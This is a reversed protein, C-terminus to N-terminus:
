TASRTSSPSAAVEPRAVSVFWATMFAAPVSLLTPYDYPFLPQAHGLVQVWVRPSFLILVVSLVLGVAGGWVAGATTLGPWYMALLLITFNASAGIVLPLTALFGVNQDRFLIGLVISVIGIVLCAYRSVRLEAAEDARGARLVGNYFDRSVAAAAALTIGSVVALITAFAVAAVVGLLVSGGLDHALHVAAMNAGGLLAGQTDTYQSGHRVYAIAGYGLVIVMLQFGVILASAVALSRRAASADRVTFFRMLVHPMGAPGLAFALALGIASFSDKLLGNSALLSAPGGREAAAAAALMPLSFDSRMLVVIVMFLVTAILVAAKVIQIWTTAIMGGFIVYIMMLSGILVVAFEYPFGFLVQVLAGAGVIQAILYTGCICLTSATTLTRVPRDALRHCLV